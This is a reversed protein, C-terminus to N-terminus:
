RVRVPLIVMAHGQWQLRKQITYATQNHLLRQYWAERRFILQGSFFTTHRFEQAVTRALGEAEDVVETGLAFRSTAPFGLRNAFAVYRELAQETRERLAPIAEEGKLEGSDIVGVSLFVLNRFHGPFTRLIGLVTHVGLGSYGGVLVAATPQRPDPSGPPVVGPEAPLDGLTTDLEALKTAVTRYHRRIAFCLAVFAGTALATLWGGQLFKESLTIGLITACLLLGTAFLAARSRWEAREGRARLWMRLMGLMSLSFTVFVNISYMVVLARVDGHTYLLAALSAVAMLLVGNQSTLRDSLAAFRHPIWSDVAMNALVRPGDIFGAQAAVVLLAGESLLTLLVFLAGGPVGQSLKSSLVANLTRGPEPGIGLLLYCLVLGAATFTLSGAMYLMTRKATAVRPERMLPVGNSVAEIGTYTGGGLSYAYVLLLAVGGLGLEQASAQIGHRVHAAVQPVATVHILLGAGILLVHTLLFLVFIPALALASEKAGRLNLTTLGVILFLELPLKLFHLELPVLSFLADGAAALSVTITLVYDVVLAGGSIVGLSPGLLKTAVVYGGGGHPFEEIIRSYAASIVLVTVAVALALFVALETHQGLTRFAEEPGYSSSSLGDAGLGVWALFPMLAIRHFISRDALDRPRGVLVRRVRQWRSPTEAPPPPPEPLPRVEPHM